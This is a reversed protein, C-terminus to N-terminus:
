IRNIFLSPKLSKRFCRSSCSNANATETLCKWGVLISEELASSYRSMRSSLARSHALARTRPSAPASQEFKQIWSKPFNSFERENPFGVSRVNAFVKGAIFNWPNYAGVGLSSCVCSNFIWNILLTLGYLQQYNYECNSLNLVHLFFLRSCQSLTKRFISEWSCHFFPIIKSADLFNHLIM